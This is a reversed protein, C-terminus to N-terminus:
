GDCLFLGDQKLYCRPDLRSLYDFSPRVRKNIYKCNEQRITSGVVFFKLLLLM